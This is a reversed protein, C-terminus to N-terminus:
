PCDWSPPPIPHPSWKRGWLNMLLDNSHQAIEVFCSRFAPLPCWAGLFAPQERQFYTPCFIFSLFVSLLTLSLSRDQPPLKWVAPLERVPPDTPLEPIESPLMVPLPFFFFGVCFLRRVAVAWLSTAWVILQVPLHPNM